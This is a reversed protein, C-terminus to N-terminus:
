GDGTWVFEFKGDANVKGHVGTNVHCDRGKSQLYEILFLVDVNGCDDHSGWLLDVQIPEDGEKKRIRLMKPEFKATPLEDPPFNPAEKIIEVVKKSVM